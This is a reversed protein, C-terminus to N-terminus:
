GAVDALWADVLPLEDAPLIDAAVLAAYCARLNPGVHAAGPALREPASSLVAPLPIPAAPRPASRSLM